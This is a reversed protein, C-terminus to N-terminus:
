LQKAGQDSIKLCSLRSTAYAATDINIRNTLFQASPMPSHGHVIIREFMAEHELFEERIWLCDREAQEELSVRPRIGAHVFFYAGLDVTTALEDLFRRHRSPFRSAFEKRIEADDIPDTLLGPDVGYSLLTEAGGLDRWEQFSSEEALFTELLSEHNGRLFIANRSEQRRILWDVVEASAPGRDIYDGLYIETVDNLTETEADRDIRAGMAALLDARGHIDGIAYILSGKPAPPYSPLSDEFPLLWSFIRYLSGQRVPRPDSRPAM